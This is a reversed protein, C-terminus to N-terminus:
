PASRIAWLVVQPQRYNISKAKPSFMNRFWNIWWVPHLSGVSLQFKTQQLRLSRISALSPSNIKTQWTLLAKLLCKRRHNLYLNSNIIGQLILKLHPHNYIFTNIQCLIPTWRISNLKMRKRRDQSLTAEERPAQGWNSIKESSKIKLSFAIETFM